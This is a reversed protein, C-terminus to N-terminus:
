SFFLKFVTYVLMKATHKLGRKHGYPSYGPLSRQGHSRWDLIGSHTEMGEELVEGGLVSGADGANCASEKSSLRPSVWLM